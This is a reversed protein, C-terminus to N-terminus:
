SNPLCYSTLNLVVISLEGLNLRNSDFANLLIEQALDDLYVTTIRIVNWKLKAAPKRDTAPEVNQRRRFDYWGLNSGPCILVSAM